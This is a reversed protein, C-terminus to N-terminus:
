VGGAQWNPARRRRRRPPADVKAYRLMMIAYRVADLVDDKVKVIKGDERHYLLYEEQFLTCTKFVKFTGTEMRQQLDLIGAEVSVASMQSIAAHGAKQKRKPMPYRAHEPTAKMGEDRYMDIVKAGTGKETQLGDKPWAWSMNRGFTRLSLWHTDPTLGRRRYERVLYVIDNESDWAIKVGATPHDSGGIDIAGLVKFHEPLPFPDVLLDEVDTLYIRGEGLAPQGYIRARQENKPWRRIEREIQEDTLHLADYLTMRVTFRDSEDDGEDALYLNVVDSYGKLPTFSMMTNGHVGITRAQGESYIEKKPEEDFWVLDVPPGQWFRRHQEYFLFRLMSFGGSVHEVMYYDYLNPAARNKGYISTLRRKPIMGTGLQGPKGLLMRQVNDRTANASEGAAWAVIPRNYRLGPWWKPYEGTLHMAFEAGCSYTKGNQNGATLLRNRKRRGAAHFELQKPYARYDQLQDTKLYADLAGALVVRTDKSLDTLWRFESM